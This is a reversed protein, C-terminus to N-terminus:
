TAVPEEPFASGAHLDSLPQARRRSNLSIIARVKGRPTRPLEAVYEVEVAAGEGAVTEVYGRLRRMLERRGVGDLGPAAVVRLVYESPTRQEIQYSRVHENEDTLLRCLAQPHLLEGDPLELWDDIRGEVYSTAPRDPLPPLAVSDSNAM